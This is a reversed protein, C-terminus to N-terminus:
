IGRLAWAKLREFDREGSNAAALLQCTLQEKTAARQPLSVAASGTTGLTLWAADYVRYLLNTTALDFQTFPM